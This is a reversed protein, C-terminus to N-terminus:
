WMREARHGTRPNAGTRACALAPACSTTRVARLPSACCLDTHLHLRGRSLLWGGSSDIAVPYTFQHKREAIFPKVTGEDEKTVGVLQVGKAKYNEVYLKNLHPIAIKCPPCWTAWFEIVSVKGGGLEFAEGQVYKLSSLSAAAGGVKQPTLMEVISFTYATCYARRHRDASRAPAPVPPLPARSGYRPVLIMTIAVQAVMTSTKDIVFYECTKNQCLPGASPCADPERTPLCHLRGTSRSADPKRAERRLHRDRDLHAFATPYFGHCRRARSCAALIRSLYRRVHSVAATCAPQKSGAPPACEAARPRRTM